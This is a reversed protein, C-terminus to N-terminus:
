KISLVALVKNVAKVYPKNYCSAHIRADWLMQQYKTPNIKDCSIKDLLEDFQERIDRYDMATVKKECVPCIKLEIDKRFYYQFTDGVDEWRGDWKLQHQADFAMVVKWDEVSQVYVPLGTETHVIQIDTPNFQSSRFVELAVEKTLKDM